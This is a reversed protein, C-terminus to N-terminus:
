ASAQLEAEPTAAEQDAPSPLIHRWTEGKRIRRITMPAVGFRRAMEVTNEKAERIARVTESNLKAHSNAEGPAAQIPRGKAWADLLNSTLTM